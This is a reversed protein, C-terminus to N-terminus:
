VIRIISSQITTNELVRKNNQYKQEAQKIIEVTLIILIGYIASFMPFSIPATSGLTWFWFGRRTSDRLQNIFLSSGILMVYHIGIPFLFYIVICILVLIEVCHGFPRHPLSTAGNLSWTGAAIFHDVDLMMGLWGAMLLDRLHRRLPITLREWMSIAIVYKNKPDLALICHWLVSALICHCSEDIAISCVKEHGYCLNNNHMAKMMTDGVITILSAVVVHLLIIGLAVVRKRSM